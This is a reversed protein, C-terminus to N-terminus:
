LCECDGEPRVRLVDVELVRPQVRRCSSSSPKHMLKARAGRCGLRMRPLQCTELRVAPIEALSHLAITSCDIKSDQRLLSNAMCLALGGIGPKGLARNLCM